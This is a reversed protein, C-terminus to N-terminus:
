RGFGRPPDPPLPPVDGPLPPQLQIGPGAGGPLPQPPPVIVGGPAFPVPGGVLPVGQAAPVIAGQPIAVGGYPQVTTKGLKGPFFFDQVDVVPHTSCGGAALCLFLSLGFLRNM